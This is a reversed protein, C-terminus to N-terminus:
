SRALDDRMTLWTLYTMPLLTGGGMVIALLPGGALNGMAAAMAAVVVLVAYAVVYMAVIGVKQM